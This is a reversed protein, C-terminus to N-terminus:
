KEQLYKGILEAAQREDDDPSTLTLALEEKSNLLKLFQIFTNVLTPSLKYRSNETDYKLAHIDYSTTYDYGTGNLYTTAITTGNTSTTVSGSTYPQSPTQYTTTFAGGSISGVKITGVVSLNDDEDDTNPGTLVAISSVVKM